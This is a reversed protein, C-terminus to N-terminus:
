LFVGTNSDRKLLTASCRSVAAEPLIVSIVLNKRCMWASFNLYYGSISGNLDRGLATMKWNSKRRPKQIFDTEILLFFPKSSYFINYNFILSYYSLAQWYCSCLILNGQCFANMQVRSISFRRLLHSMKLWKKASCVKQIIFRNFYIHHLSNQFM